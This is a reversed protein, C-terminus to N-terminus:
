KHLKEVAFSFGASVKRTMTPVEIVDIGLDIKAIVDKVDL